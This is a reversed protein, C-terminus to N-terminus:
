MKVACRYDEISQIYTDHSVDFSSSVHIITATNNIRTGHLTRRVKDGLELYDLAESQIPSTSHTQSYFRSVIHLRFTIEAMQEKQRASLTNWRIPLIEIFVAPSDFPQEKVLYMVNKNWLDFFKFVKEKNKNEINLIKQQIDMLLQKIRM